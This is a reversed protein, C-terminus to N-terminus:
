NETLAKFYPEWAPQAVQILFKNHLQGGQRLEVYHFGTKLDGPLTKCASGEASVDYRHSLASLDLGPRGQYFLAGDQLVDEDAPMAALQLRKEFAKQSPAGMLLIRRIRLLDMSGTPNNGDSVTYVQQYGAKKAAVGVAPNYAGYPYALALVPHGLEKELLEKSHRLEKAISACYAKVDQSKGPKALNPHTLTHSAVEHGRREIERCQEWSMFSGHGLSGPNVFYVAKFGHAEIAALGDLGAKYGDDISLILSKGPLAGNSADAVQKLTVTHFGEAKLWDLQANFRALAIKYPDKTSEAGFRHYCIVSLTGGAASLSASLALFLALLRGKM